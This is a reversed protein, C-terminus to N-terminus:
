SSPSALVQEYAEAGEPEVRLRAKWRAREPVGVTVTTLVVRAGADLAASGQHRSQNGEGNVELLFSARYSANPAGVVQFRVGGDVTERTLFIPAKAAPAGAGTLSALM